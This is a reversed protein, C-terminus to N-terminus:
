RDRAAITPANENPQRNPDLEIVVWDDRFRIGLGETPKHDQLALAQLLPLTATVMNTSQPVVSLAEAAAPLRSDIVSRHVWIELPVKLEHKMAAPPQVKEATEKVDSVRGLAFQICDDTSCVQVDIQSDGLMGRVYGAVNLQKNLSAVQENVKCDFAHCIEDHTRQWAIRQTIAKSEGVKRWGIRRVIRGRLRPLTSQVDDTVLRTDGQYQSEFATFGSLPSFSLQRVVSFNTSSHSYVRAPGSIGVTRTRVTGVFHVKFSAAEDNASSKVHIIGSTQSTGTVPTGLIVTRVPSTLHVQEASHAGVADGRIRVLIPYAVTPESKLVSAKVKQFLTSPEEAVVFRSQCLGVVVLLAIYDRM